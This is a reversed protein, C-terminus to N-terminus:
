GPQAVGSHAITRKIPGRELLGGMWSSFVNRHARHLPSGATFPAPNMSWSRRYFALPHFSCCALRSARRLMPRAPLAPCSRGRLIEAIAARSEFDKRMAGVSSHRKAQPYRVLANPPVNALPQKEVDRAADMRDSFTSSGSYRDETTSSSALSIFTRTNTPAFGASSLRGDATIPRAYLGTINWACNSMAVM